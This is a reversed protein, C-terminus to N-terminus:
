TGGVMFYATDPTNAVGLSPVKTWLIAFYPTKVTATLNVATNALTTDTAQSHRYRISIRYREKHNNVTLNIPFSSTIGGSGIRGHLFLYTIQQGYNNPTILQTGGDNLISALGIHPSM